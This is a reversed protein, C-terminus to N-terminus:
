VATGNYNGHSDPVTTGSINDLAYWSVLGKTESATLEDYKKNYISKGEADTLPRSWIAVNCMSGTLWDAGGIGSLNDVGMRTVSGARPAISISSDAGYSVGDVFFRVSSGTKKVGIQHWENTFSSSHVYTTNDNFSGTTTDIRVEQNNRIQFRFGLNSVLTAHGADPEGKVWCLITFDQDETFPSGSYAWTSDSESFYASGASPSKLAEASPSLDVVSGGVKTVYSAASSIASTITEGAKIAQALLYGLYPM